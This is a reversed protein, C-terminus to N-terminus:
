SMARKKEEIKKLLGIAIQEDDNGFPNDPASKILEIAQIAKSQATELVQKRLEQNRFFEMGDAIGGGSPIAERAIFKIILKTVNPGYKNM